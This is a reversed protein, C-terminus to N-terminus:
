PAGQKGILADLQQQADNMDKTFENIYRSREESQWEDAFFITTPYERTTHLYGRRTEL